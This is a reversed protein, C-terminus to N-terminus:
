YPSVVCLAGQKMIDGVVAPLNVPRFVRGNNRKQKKHGYKLGNRRDSICKMIKKLEELLINEHYM